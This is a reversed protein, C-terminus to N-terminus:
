QNQSYTYHERSPVDYILISSFSLSNLADIVNEIGSDGLVVGTESNYVRVLFPLRTEEGQGKILDFFEGYNDLNDLQIVRMDEVNKKGEVLALLLESDQYQGKDPFRLTAVYLELSVRNESGFNNGLGINDAM